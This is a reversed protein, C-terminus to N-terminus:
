THCSHDSKSFLCTPCLKKHNNGESSQESDPNLHTALGTVPLAQDRSKSSQSGGCSPTVPPSTVNRRNGSVPTTQSIQPINMREAHFTVEKVFVSLSPFANQGEAQQLKQVKNSWKSQFWGPLKEVLSQLKSSYEFIKLNSIHETGLKLQQLYDSFEQMGKADNSGTKPWNSLKSEFETSLM